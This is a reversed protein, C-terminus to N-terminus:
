MISVVKAEPHVPFNWDLVDSSSSQVSGLLCGCDQQAKLIAERRNDAKIFFSGTFSYRTEVEYIKM